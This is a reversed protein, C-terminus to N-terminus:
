TGKLILFPLGPCMCWLIYKKKKRKGKQNGDKALEISQHSQQRHCNRGSVVRFIDALALGL